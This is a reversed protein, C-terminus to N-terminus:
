GYPVAQLPSPGKGKSGCSTRSQRAALDGAANTRCPIVIEVQYATFHDTEGRTHPPGKQSKIIQRSILPSGRCFSLVARTSLFLLWVPSSPIEPYSLGLPRLIM